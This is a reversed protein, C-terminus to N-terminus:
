RVRRQHVPHFIKHSSELVEYWADFSEQLAQREDCFAQSIRLGKRLAKLAKRTRKGRKIKHHKFFAEVGEYVICFFALSLPGEDDYTFYTFNVIIEEADEDSLGKFWQADKEALTWKPQLGMLACRVLRFMPQSMDVNLWNNLISRFYDTAPINTM